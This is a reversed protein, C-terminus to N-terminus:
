VERIQKFILKKKSFINIKRFFNTLYRPKSMDRKYSQKTMLVYNSILSPIVESYYVKYLGQMTAMTTLYGWKMVQQPVRALAEICAITEEIEPDSNKYVDAVPALNFKMDEIMARIMLGMYQEKIFRKIFFLKRRNVSFLFKQKYIFGLLRAWYARIGRIKNKNYFKVKEEYTIMQRMGISLLKALLKDCNIIDDIRAQRVHPTAKTGFFNASHRSIQSGSADRKIDAFHGLEQGAIIQLRAAAAWGDGYTPHNKDNEAFPNGDCSVFVAVNKGDTSQMGSNSGSRQWDVIDMMDGINHSYTIFVQVKDHLLWRIVIPHASQVFLRTLKETVSQDVPQLKQIQKKLDTYISALKKDSISSKYLSRLLQNTQEILNPETIEEKSIMLSINFKPDSFRAFNCSNDTDIRLKGSKILQQALQEYEIQMDEPYIAPIKDLIHYISSM